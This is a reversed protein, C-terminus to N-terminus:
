VCTHTFAKTPLLTTLTTSDVSCIPRTLLNGTHEQWALIEQETMVNQDSWPDNKM